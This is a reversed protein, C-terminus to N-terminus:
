RLRPSSGHCLGIDDVGNSGRAAKALHAFTRQRLHMGLMKGGRDEGRQLITVRDVGGFNVIHDPTDGGRKALLCAVDAAHRREIRAIVEVLRAAAIIFDPM